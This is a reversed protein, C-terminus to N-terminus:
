KSGNNKGGIGSKEVKQPKKLFVWGCIRKSNRKLISTDTRKYCVSIHSFILPNSFASHKMGRGDNRGFRLFREKRRVKIVGEWKGGEWKRV